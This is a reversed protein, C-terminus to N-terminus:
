KKKCNSASCNKVDQAFKGGQKNCTGVPCNGAAGGQMQQRRSMQAFAAEGLNFVLLLAAVTMLALLKSM